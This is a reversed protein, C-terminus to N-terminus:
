AKTLLATKLKGDDLLRIERVKYTVGQIVGRDGKRIDPLDTAAYTILYENSLAEGGFVQETPADFIVSATQAAGGAEPVFTASVAFGAADFFVSMDEAFPM